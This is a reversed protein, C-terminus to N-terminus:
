SNGRPSSNMVIQVTTHRREASSVSELCDSSSTARSSNITIRSSVMRRRWSAKVRAHRDYHNHWGRARAEPLLRPKRDLFIKQEGHAQSRIPYHHMLFKYPFTRAGEFEVMHAAERTLSIPIGRNKWARQQVFHAPHRAWDFRHFYSFFDTGPIFGNDTPPFDAVTFDIRDFGAVDVRYM